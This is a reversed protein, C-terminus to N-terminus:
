RQDDAKSAKPAICPLVELEDLKAERENRSSPALRPSCHAKSEEQDLVGQAKKVKATGVWPHLTSAEMHRTM